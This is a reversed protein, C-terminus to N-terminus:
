SLLLDVARAFASHPPGAPAVRTARARANEGGHPMAFSLGAWDFMPIDNDGDGFAVVNEATLGLDAVLIELASAKSTEVPMFEFIRSETQVGQLGFADLSRDSNLDAIARPRGWWLVKHVPMGLLEGPSVLRPTLGSLAAYADLDERPGGPAFVHDSGYYIASFGRQMAAEMLGRVDPERLFRRALIASRDARSVEAGQSSVVWKVEPLKRAYGQMSRFHRGSALVVELGAKALREVAFRNDDGIERDPGLLTGDLDIAALRPAPPKPCATM